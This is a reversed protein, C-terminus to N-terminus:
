LYSEVKVLFGLYTLFCLSTSSLFVFLQPTPRVLLCSLTVVVVLVPPAVFTITKAVARFKLFCAFKYALWDFM